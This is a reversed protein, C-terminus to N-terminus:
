QVRLSFSCSTDRAVVDAVSPVPGFFIEVLTLGQAPATVGAAERDKAALIGPMASPARRGTGVEVLTGVINRVMQKLFGEGTVWVELMPGKEVVEIGLVTRVRTKASSDVACFSTFDHTGVLDTAAARMAAVDLDRLHTWVFPVLFPNREAKRWIRYCYAKGTAALIPHFAPDVPALATVGVSEPLLGYLSKIWRREDFTVASKFIAVQHEAHVGSDTRAAAIVRVPHRLLTALAKELFDQVCNGSPQSQWGHFSTGVYKLDIRYSRVDDNSAM